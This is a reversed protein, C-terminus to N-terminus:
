HLFDLGNILQTAPGLATRPHQLTQL